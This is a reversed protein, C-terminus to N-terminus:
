RVCTTWHEYRRYYRWAGDKVPPSDDDQKIRALMEDYLAKSFPELSKTAADTYANEAELYSVVEPTKKQRLWFYDDRLTKGFHATEHTERKAVPPKPGQDPPSSSSSSSTM